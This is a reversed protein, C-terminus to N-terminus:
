RQHRRRTNVLGLLKIKRNSQREDDCPRQDVQAHNLADGLTSFDDIHTHFCLKTEAKISMHEYVLHGRYKGVDNEDNEEESSDRQFACCVANSM